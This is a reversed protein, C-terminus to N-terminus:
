NCQLFCSIKESLTANKIQPVSSFTDKCSYDNPVSVSLLDCLVSALNYNFTGTSSIMPRLKPFSDGSFFKHMETTGYTCAPASGSTLKNM